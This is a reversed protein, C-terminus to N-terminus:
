HFYYHGRHQVLGQPVSFSVYTATVLAWSCVRAVNSSFMHHTSSIPQIRDHETRRKIADASRLLLNASKTDAIRKDLIHADSAAGAAHLAVYVTKQRELLVKQLAAAVAARLQSVM